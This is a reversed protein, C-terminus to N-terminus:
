KKRKGEYISIADKISTKCVNFAVGYILHEGWLYVNEISRESLYTDYKLKNKYDTVEVSKKFFLKSTKFNFLNKRKAKHIGKEKFEEKIIKEVNRLDFDLEKLENIGRTNNYLKSYDDYSDYFEYIRDANVHNYYKFVIRDIIYIESVSIKNNKLKEKQETSLVRNSFSYYDCFEKEKKEFRYAFTGDKRCIKTLEILGLELFHLVTAIIHYNKVKDELMMAAQIPTLYFETINYEM